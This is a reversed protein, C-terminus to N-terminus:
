KEREMTQKYLVQMKEMFQAANKMGGKAAEDVWQQQMLTLQDANEWTKIDEKSMLKVKYGAKKQKAMVKEFTSNYVKAFKQEAMECSKLIAQQVDAPLKNWYDLNITHLFPTAFWLEKTVLLNSAVEDFKMLNTADYNTFTGAITGTQLAMFVDGWPVSVPLAGANKLFRLAWKDGARWKDGKIDSLRNLPKTSCFAGPLGSTFILNKQNLKRLQDSFEPIEKIAKRYFWVINEFKSPGRPFLKFVTFAPLQGPYWGPYIFGMNASNDGVGKLVEKGSLLVGGWFQNIKVQGNTRKEIDPFLVDRMFVPRMGGMPDSDAYKLKFTKAYSITAFSFLLVIIM